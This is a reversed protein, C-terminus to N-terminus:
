AECPGEWMIESHGRLFSGGEPYIFALASFSYNTGMLNLNWWLQMEKQLYSTILTPTESLYLDRDGSSWIWSYVKEKGFKFKFQLDDRKACFVKGVLSYPFLDINKFHDYYRTSSKFGAYSYQLHDLSQHVRQALIFQVLTLALLIFIVSTTFSRKNKPSNM